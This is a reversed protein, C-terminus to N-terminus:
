GLSWRNYRQIKPISLCNWGVSQQTPSQNDVSLNFNDMNIFPVGPCNCQLPFLARREWVTVSKIDYCTCPPVANPSSWEFNSIKIRNYLLQILRSSQTSLYFLIICSNGNIVIKPDRTLRNALLKWSHRLWSHFDSAFRRVLSGLVTNM